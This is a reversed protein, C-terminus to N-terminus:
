EDHDARRLLLAPADRHGCIDVPGVTATVAATPRDPHGGLRVLLWIRHLPDAHRPPGCPQVDALRVATHLVARVSGRHVRFAGVAPTHHLPRIAHCGWVIWEPDEDFGSSSPLAGCALTLPASMALLIPAVMSMVMHSVMHWTMTVM